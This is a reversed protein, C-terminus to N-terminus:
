HILVPQSIREQCMQVVRAFLEQMTGSNKTAEVTRGDALRAVLAIEHTRDDVDVQIANRKLFREDQQSLVMIEITDQVQGNRVLNSYFM